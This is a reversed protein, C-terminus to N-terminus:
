HKKRNRRVLEELYGQIYESAKTFRANKLSPITFKGSRIHREVASALKAGEPGAAALAQTGGLEPLAAAILNLIEEETLPAGAQETAQNMTELAGKAEDKSMEEPKDEKTRKVAVDSEVDVDDESPKSDNESKEKKKDSEEADGEESTEPPQAPPETGNETDEEEEEMAKKAQAAKMLLQGYLYQAVLDAHHEAQKELGYCIGTAVGVVDQQNNQSAASAQKVEEEEVPEDEKERRVLFAQEEIEKPDTPVQVPQPVVQNEDLAKKQLAYHAEALLANGVLTLDKFLESDPIDAAHKRMYKRPDLGMRQQIVASPNENAPDTGTYTGYISVHKPQKTGEGALTGSYTPQKGGFSQRIWKDDQSVHDGTAKTKEVNVNWDAKTDSAATKTMIEDLLTRIRDAPIEM